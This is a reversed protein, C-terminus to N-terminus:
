SFSCQRVKKPDVEETVEEVTTPAETTGNKHQLDMIHQQLEETCNSTVVQECSDNDRIVLRPFLTSDYATHMITYKAPIGSVSNQLLSKKMRTHKGSTDGPCTM